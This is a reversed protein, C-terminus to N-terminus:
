RMTGKDVKKDLKLEMINAKRQATNTYNHRDATRTLKTKGSLVYKLTYALLNDKLLPKIGTTIDM